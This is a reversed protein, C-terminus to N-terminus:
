TVETTDSETCGWSDPALATEKNVKKCDGLEEAIVTPPPLMQQIATKPARM